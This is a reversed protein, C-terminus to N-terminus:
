GGIVGTAHQEDEMERLILELRALSNWADGTAHLVSKDPFDLDFPGEIQEKLIHRGLADGYRNIGDDVKEWGKWSYKAAGKASLNAVAMIARPFYHLAGQMVPSKGADLKAGPQKAPIGNPDKESFIEGSRFAVKGPDRYFGGEMAIETALNIQPDEDDPHDYRRTM